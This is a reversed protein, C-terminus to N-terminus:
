NSLRKHHLAKEANGMAEYVRSLKYHASKAYNPGMAVVKDYYTIANKYDKQQEYCLGINELIDKKEMQATTLTLAKNYNEVAKKYDPTSLKQMQITAISSYLEPDSTSYKLGDQYRALAEDYKRQEFYTYYADDKIVKCIKKNIAAKGAPNLALSKEYSSQASAYKSSKALFDGYKEYTVATPNTKLEKVLKYNEQETFDNQFNWDIKMMNDYAELYYDTNNEKKSLEFLKRWANEYEYKVNKENSIKGSRHYYYMASDRSGKSLEYCLGIAYMSQWNDPEYNLSNKYAVCAESYQNNKFYSQGLMKYSLGNPVNDAFKKVTELKKNANRMEDYVGALGTYYDANKPNLQISREMLPLMKDYKSEQYYLEALKWYYEPKTTDSKIKDLLQAETIDQSYSRLCLGLLVGLIIRTKM